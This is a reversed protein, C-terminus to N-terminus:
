VSRAVCDSVNFLCRGYLRSWIHRVCTATNSNSTVCSIVIIQIKKERESRNPQEDYVKNDSSLPSRTQACLIQCCCCIVLWCIGFFKIPCYIYLSSRKTMRWCWEADAASQNHRSQVNTLYQITRRRFRPIFLQPTIQQCIPDEAQAGVVAIDDYQTCGMVNQGAEIFWINTNKNWKM